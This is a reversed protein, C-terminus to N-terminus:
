ICCCHRVKLAALDTEGSNRPIVITVDTGEFMWLLPLLPVESAAAAAAAHTPSSPLSRRPAPQQSQLQHAM